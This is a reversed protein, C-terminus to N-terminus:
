ISIDNIYEAKIFPLNLYFDINLPMMIIRTHFFFFCLLTFAYFSKPFTIQIGVVRKWQHIKQPRFSESLRRIEGIRYVEPCLWSSGAKISMRAASFTSLILEAKGKSLSSSLNLNFKVIPVYAHVWTTGSLPVLFRAHTTGETLPVLLHPFSCLECLRGDDCFVWLGRGAPIEMWLSAMQSHSCPDSSVPECPEQFASNEALPRCEAFRPAPCLELDM